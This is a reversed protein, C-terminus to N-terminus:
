AYSRVQVLARFCGNFAPESICGHADTCTSFLAFITDIDHEGLNTLQQVDRLTLKLEHEEEDASDEPEPQQVAAAAVAAASNHANSSVGPTHALVLRYLPRSSFYVPAKSLLSLPFYIDQAVDLLGVVDTSLEFGASLTESIEKVSIGPHLLLEKIESSHQVKCTFYEVEDM